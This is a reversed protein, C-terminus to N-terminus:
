SLSVVIPSMLSLFFPWVVLPNQPCFSRTVEQLPGGDMKKGLRSKRLTAVELPLSAM